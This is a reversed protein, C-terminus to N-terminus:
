CCMGLSYNHDYQEKSLEEFAKDLTGTISTQIGAGQISDTRHDLHQSFKLM